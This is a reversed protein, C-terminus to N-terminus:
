ADEADDDVEELVAYVPDDFGEPAEDVEPAQDEAAIELAGELLNDADVLVPPGVKVLEEAVKRLLHEVEAFVQYLAEDVAHLAHEGARHVGHLADALADDVAELVQEADFGGRLHEVPQTHVDTLAERLADLACFRSNGGRRLSEGARHSL